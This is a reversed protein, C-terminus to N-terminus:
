ERRRWWATGGLAALAALVGFGDGSAPEPSPTATPTETPTETQTETPTSTPTPSDTNVPTSAAETPTPTPSPIVPPDAQEGTRDPFTYLGSFSVPLGSVLHSSAVFTDDAARRATWFAAEDPQRWWALLEPNSPDSVDHVKVGAQYWSTYLRDGVLDFNHSTTWYGSRITEDRARVPGITALETPEAPTSIDYLTIGGPGGDVGSIDWAERGVALLSGDDSVQSYHHNGPPVFRNVRTLDAVEERTYDSVMTVYAPNAPDSVDLVFTGANWTALYARDDHVTVDHVTRQGVPVSSWADDYGTPDWTALRDADDASLDVVALTQGGSGATLYAV